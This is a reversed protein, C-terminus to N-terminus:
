GVPDFMKFGGPAIKKWNAIWEAKKGANWLEVYGRAFELMQERTPAAMKKGGNKPDRTPDPKSDAQAPGRDVPRRTGEAEPGPVTELSRRSPSSGGVTSRGPRARSGAAPRPRWSSRRARWTRPS